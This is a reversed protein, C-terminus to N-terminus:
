AIAGWSTGMAWPNQNATGMYQMPAGGGGTGAGMGGFMNGMGPMGFLSGALSGIAQWGSNNPEAVTQTQSSTTKKNYPTGALLSTLFAASNADFGSKRMFESFDFDARAQDVGRAGRGSEGLASALGLSRSVDYRDLGTLDIGSQRLRDLAARNEGAQAQDTAFARGADQQRLGMASMFADSWAKNTTDAGLQAEDRYQDGEVVGHRADGFAGSMTASSGISNRQQEGRENIQRMVPDLVKQLYPNMYSEITGLPGKEDVITNFDFDFPSSTGYTQFANKAYGSFPNLGSATNRIMGAAALEDGNQGVVRQGEYPQFGRTLAEKAWNYNDEGADRMWDPIKIKTSGTTDTQKTTDMEGFCM